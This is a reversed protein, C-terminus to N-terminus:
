NKAPAPAPASPNSIEKGKIVIQAILAVVVIGYFGLDIVPKIADLLASVALATALSVVVHVTLWGLLNPLVTSGYFDAIKHWEFVHTRIALAVGFMLDIVILGLLVLAMDIFEPTLITQWTIVM